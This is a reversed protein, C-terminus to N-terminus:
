KTKVRVGDRVKDDPYVIVTDGERLGSVIQAERPNKEGVEVRIRVARGNRVAFAAWGTEDRFLAAQPAKLADGGEWVTIRAEIRYGDSLMGWGAGEPDILVFVRQEEVGLASVKMFASPEVLRVRGALAERGGWGEITVSNGAKVRVADTTLLDVVAEIRGPDGLELLPTGAQVPGESEIFVRLVALGSGAGPARVPVTDGSGSPQDFRTLAARAAKANGSATQVALLASTVARDRTGAEFEAADLDRAAVAKGESLKRLRELERGAHDRASKALDVASEAEALAALAAAHRARAEARTRADLPFPTAPSIRAIEAGAETTDGARLAVRGLHGSAPAAVVFRDRLRVRGSGEVFSQLPGRVVRGTEIPVASPALALGILALVAVAAASFAFTRISKKM